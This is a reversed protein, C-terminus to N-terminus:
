FSITFHLALPGSKCGQWFASDRGFISKTLDGMQPKNGKGRILLEKPPKVSFSLLTKLAPFYWVTGAFFSTAIRM